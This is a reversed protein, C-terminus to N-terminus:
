YQLDRRITLPSVQLEEALEQVKVFGNYIHILSLHLVVQQSLTYFTKWKLYLCLVTKWKPSKKSKRESLQKGFGSKSYNLCLFFPAVYYFSSFLCMVYRDRICM